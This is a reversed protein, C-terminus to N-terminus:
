KYIDTKRRNREQLGHNLSFLTTIAEVYGYMFCGLYCTFLTVRASKYYWTNKDHLVLPLNISCYKVISAFLFLIAVLIFREGAHIVKDIFKRETASDLARSWGFCVSALGIFIAFGYNTLNTTDKTEEGFTNAVMVIGLDAAIFM